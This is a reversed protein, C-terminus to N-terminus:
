FVRLCFHSIVFYSPILFESIPFPFNIWGGKALGVPRRVEARKIEGTLRGAPGGGGKRGV